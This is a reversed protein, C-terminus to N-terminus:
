GIALIEAADNPYRQTLVVIGSFQDAVDEATIRGRWSWGPPLLLDPIFGESDGGGNMSIVPCGVTLNVRAEASAPMTAVAEVETVLDGNADYVGVFGYRINAVASSDFVFRIALVREFYRGDVTYTFGAGAAPDPVRVIDQWGVAFSPAGLLLRAMQSVNSQGPVPM